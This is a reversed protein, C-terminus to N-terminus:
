DKPCVPRIPMGVFFCNEPRYINDPAGNLFHAFGPRGIVLSSSWYDSIYEASIMNSDGESHYGAAPLFISKDTYGAKNSTVRYGNTGNETTWVWTCSSLIETFDDYTPMRWSDGWIVRAADDELELQTLGDPEGIGDWYDTKDKPCYKTLKNYSGNAYKYTAWSYDEKPETEGWAFYDGYEEPKTAGVNFSAWKVSLGLDVAEPQPEKSVTVACTASLGNSAYATITTSGEAMASINGNQDVSVISYDESEWRVSLVTANSPSITATLQASAGVILELSSKDLTISSVPIFEGYVPRVSQGFDRPYGFRIVVESEFYAHWAIGHKDLCLSSSWYKGAGLDDPFDSNRSGAAPLFISNGNSATVVRGTIGSGNYNDTWAWTCNNILEIWEANTPMRWSGGWNAHAADDEIDLITKNDPSGSGDWYSAQNSTCYKTFTKFSGKCWMYTQWIYSDKPETEGWAFYDGYEEPKTAGVNFTAWKVSLGLDVWTPEVVTSEWESVKSDVNKLVGFISRKITQEKDSTLTGIETDTTFTLTIGGDLTTPLLTIYYYKLPKFCGGDPATLTVESQGDIVETVEPHGDANFAVKVKGALTEGNNGKITVSKIDTRSVFFKVGGCINWFPLNMSSAKAMAPFADNSFNGEVGTQQHPIVTTISSGDCSNDASYPYVAWFEKSGSITINGEFEVTEAHSTNTSTFKSGGATGSGYFMSIEEQPGWWVTGDELKVSKTDPTVSERSATFVLHAETFEASEKVTCGAM